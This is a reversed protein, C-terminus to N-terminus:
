PWTQDVSHTGPCGPSCLFGTEFFLFLFFNIIIFFCALPVDNTAQSHLDLACNPHPNATTPVRYVGTSPLCLLCNEQTHAVPVSGTEFLHFTPPEPQPSPMFPLRKHCCVPRHKIGPVWALNGSAAGAWLGGGWFFTVVKWPCECLHSYTMFVKNLPASPSHSSPPPSQFLFVPAPSIARHNLAHVARGFTRLEFGLLWM